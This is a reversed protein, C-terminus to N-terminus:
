DLLAEAILLHPAQPDPDHEMRWLVDEVARVVTWRYALGRDLGAAECLQDTRRRIARRPDDALVLEDVRNWLAPAVEFEPDGALGKPDIVLWPERTGALVNGYHPDGHLLADGACPGVERLTALAADLLRADATRLHRDWRPPITDLWRRSQDALRALGAPAATRHLRSLLAGLTSVGEDVPVAFLSRDPELRELLLAFGSEDQALLRVSGDGDWASLTPAEGASDADPYSVKLAAPTDDACRVPVVIGVYGFRTEGDLSLGWSALLSDVQGPLAAVWAEGEEGERIEIMDAFHEPVLSM